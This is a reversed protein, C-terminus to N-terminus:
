TGTQSFVTSKLTLIDIKKDHYNQNPVHSENQQHDSYRKEVGQKLTENGINTIPNVIELRNKIKGISSKKMYDPKTETLIHVAKKHTPIKFQREPLYVKRSDRKITPINKGKSEHVLKVSRVPKTQRYNRAPRPIPINPAQTVHHPTHRFSKIKNSKSRQPITKVKANEKRSKM